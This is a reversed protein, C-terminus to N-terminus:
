RLENLSASMLDANLIHLPTFVKPRSLSTTHTTGVDLYLHTWKKHVISVIYEIRM